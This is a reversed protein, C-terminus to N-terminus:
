SGTCHIFVDDLTANPQNLPAKLDTPTGTAIVQGRNMIAVRDCINLANVATFKGFRRTLEQTELVIAKPYEACTELRETKGTLKAM